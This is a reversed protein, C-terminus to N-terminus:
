AEMIFRVQAETEIAGHIYRRVWNISAAGDMNMALRALEAMFLGTRGIGASCHVAINQGQRALAATQQLAVDLAAREPVGFDSVPLQIVQLGQQRYLQRLNRRSKELAEQDSVLMVVVDVHQQLMEALGQGEFDYDGFPMPCRYIQGQLGTFPLHTLKDLSPM